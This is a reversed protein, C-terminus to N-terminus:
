VLPLAHNSFITLTQCWLAVSTYMHFMMKEVTLIYKISNASYMYSWAKFEGYIGIIHTLSNTKPVALKVVKPVHGSLSM